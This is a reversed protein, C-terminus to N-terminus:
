SGQPDLTPGDDQKLFDDDPTTFRNDFEKVLITILKDRFKFRANKLTTKMLNLSLSFIEDTRDQLLKRMVFNTEVVGMFSTKIVKLSM